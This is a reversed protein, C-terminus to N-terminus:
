RYVNITCHDEISLNDLSCNLRDEDNHHMLIKKDPLITDSMFALFMIRSRMYQKKNICIVNYGQSHNMTNPIMKWSGAKMKREIEGSEHVRFDCGDIVIEKM